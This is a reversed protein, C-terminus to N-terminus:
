APGVFGVSVGSLQFKTGCVKAAEDAHRAQEAYGHKKAHAEFLRLWTMRNPTNTTKQDHCQARLMWCSEVSEERAKGWFHDMQAAGDFGKFWRECGCECVLGARKAVAKRIRKTEVTKSKRKRETKKKASSRPKPACAARLEAVSREHEVSEWPSSPTKPLLLDLIITARRRSIRISATM